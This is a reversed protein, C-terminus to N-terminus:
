GHATENWRVIAPVGHERGLVCVAGADLVLKAAMRPEERLHVTALVRLFHGHAVLAVDGHALDSQVDALVAAARAAVQEVTEGPTAGPVVGDDFITWDHGLREGIQATTLGEYGGYDWEHLRDDSSTPVGLDTLGSLEATRQARRYPSVLVRVIPRGGLLTVSRRAAAEGESTLPVDTLGTHRRTRSWETEGHRVLVLAGAPGPPPIQDTM